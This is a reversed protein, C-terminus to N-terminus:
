SAMAVQVFMLLRLLLWVVWHGLSVLARLFLMQLLKVLVNVVNDFVYVDFVAFVDPFWLAVWVCEFVECM